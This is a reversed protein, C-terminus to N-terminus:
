EAGRRSKVKARTKGKAFSMTSGADVGLVQSAAWADQDAGLFVVEWGKKKQETVMDFIQQQTYEVSANEAGDTLIVFVGKKGKLGTMTRGVADYLPTLEAPAYTEQTLDPM